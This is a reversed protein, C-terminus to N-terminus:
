ETMIEFSRAPPLIVPQARGVRLVMRVVAAATVRAMVGLEVDVRMGVHMQRQGNLRACEGGGASSGIPRHATSHRTHLHHTRRVQVLVQVLTHV